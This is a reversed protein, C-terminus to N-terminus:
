WAFIEWAFIENWHFKLSKFLTVKKFFTSAKIKQYSAIRFSSANNSPGVYAEQIRGETTAGLEM